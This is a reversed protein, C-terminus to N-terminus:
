GKNSLLEDVTKIYNTIAEYLAIVFSTNLFELDLKNWTETSNNTCVENLLWISNKGTKIEKRIGDYYLNIIISQEVEKLKNILLKRMFGEM